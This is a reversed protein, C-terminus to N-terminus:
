RSAATTGGRDARAAARGTDGAADHAPGQRGQGRVTVERRAFDVDQVRLRLGELLRLGSGYILSAILWVTGHMADFLAAVEDRTLVCPLREPRKARRIDDMWPLIVGLVERYLFLLAALAQNQTSAAVRDKVALSTLFMEVERAGMQAPHRKGHFLIFRRIWGLYAEETRLSLGLRRMRARVDDLLRPKGPNVGIPAQATPQPVRDRSAQSMAIEM